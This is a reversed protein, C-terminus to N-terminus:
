RRGSQGLLRSTDIEWKRAGPVSFCVCKAGLRTGLSAQARRARGESRASSHFFVAGFPFRRNGHSVSGCGGLCQSVPFCSSVSLGRCKARFASFILFNPATNTSNHNSGRQSIPHLNVILQPLALFKAPQREESGGVGIPRPPDEGAMTNTQKRRAFVVNEM